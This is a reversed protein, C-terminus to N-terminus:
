GPTRGRCARLRLLAATLLATLGLVVFAFTDILALPDAVVRGRAWEDDAVLGFITIAIALALSSGFERRIAARRGIAYGAALALGIALVHALAAEAPSRIIWFPRRLEIAVFLGAAGLGALLTRTSEPLRIAPAIASGVLAGVAAVGARLTTDDPLPPCYLLGADICQLQLTYAYLFGLIPLSAMVAGVLLARARDRGCTATAALAALPLGLYSLLEAEPELDQRVIGLALVALGEGLAVLSAAGIAVLFSSVNSTQM